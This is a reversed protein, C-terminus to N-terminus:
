RDRKIEANEDGAYRAVERQAKRGLAALDKHAQERTQYDDSGLNKILTDIREALKTNSDLGPTFSRVREIPVVLKGFDTEVSIESVSLDGSIVSGDLLHLRIHRPGLPAATVRPVDVAAADSATEAPKNADAAPAAFPDAPAPRALPVTKARIAQASLPSVTLVVSLLAAFPLLSKMFDGVSVLLLGRMSQGKAASPKGHHHSSAPTAATRTVTKHCIASHPWSPRVM